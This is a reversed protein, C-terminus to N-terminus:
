YALHGSEELQHSQAKSASSAINIRKQTAFYAKQQPSKGYTKVNGGHQNSRKPWVNYVSWHWM